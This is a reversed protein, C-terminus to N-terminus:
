QGLERAHYEAWLVDTMKALEALRVPKFNGLKHRVWGNEYCLFIASGNVAKYADEYARLIADGEPTTLERLMKRHGTLGRM